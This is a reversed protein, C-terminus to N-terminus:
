SQTEISEIRITNSRMELKGTVKVKKGLYLKAKAQDDLQYTMKTVPDKLVFQGREKMVRGTFALAEQTQFDDLSAAAAAQQTSDTTTSQPRSTAPARDEDGQQARASPTLACAMFSVVVVLLTRILISKIFRNTQLAAM